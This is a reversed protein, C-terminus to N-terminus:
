IHETGHSKKAQPFELVFEELNKHISFSTINQFILYSLFFFNDFFPIFFLINFSYTNVTMYYIFVGCKIYKGSPKKLYNLIKFM